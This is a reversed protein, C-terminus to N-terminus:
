KKNKERVRYLDSVKFFAKKLQLNNYLKNYSDYIFETPTNNYIPINFYGEEINKFDLYAFKYTNLNLRKEVLQKGNLDNLLPISSYISNPILTSKDETQAKGTFSFCIILTFLIKFKTTFM